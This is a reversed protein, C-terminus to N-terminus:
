QQYPAPPNYPPPPPPPPGQYYGPPPAYYQPPQAAVPIQNGRAYMCQGYAIDYRRQLQYQSAAGANSGIATGGILGAAAGVLAGPGAHGSASGLAAGLAAGAATGVVAGAALDQNATEGPSAGGIQAEAWQRCAADNAQFAEFPKGPGPLAAVRPGTPVTACGSLMAIVSLLLLGQKWNM